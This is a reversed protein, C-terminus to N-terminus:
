RKVEGEADALIKQYHEASLDIFSKLGRDKLEKIATVGRVKKRYSAGKLRDLENQPYEEVCLYGEAVARNLLAEGKESRVLVTNWGSEQEFSGVSIDALESTMDLCYKCGSRIFARATETSVQKIGDDTEVELGHQPISVKKINAGAYTESIYKRFEWSLSWMCFLGIVTIDIGQMATPHNSEMKRLAQVQCPRGVIAVRKLGERQMEVIKRLGPSALFRSGASKKIDEIEKGIFPVPTIGDNAGTLLAAQVNKNQLANKLLSSVSGGDQQGELSENSRAKYV